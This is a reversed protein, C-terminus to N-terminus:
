RKRRRAFERNLKGNTAQESENPPLYEAMLERLLDLRPSPRFLERGVRECDAVSIGIMGNLFHALRKAQAYADPAHLREDVPLERRCRELAFQTVFEELRGDQDLTNLGLLIEALLTEM